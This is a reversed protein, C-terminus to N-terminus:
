LLSSKEIGLTIAGLSNTTSLKEFFLYFDYKRTSFTKSNEETLYNLMKKIEDAITM